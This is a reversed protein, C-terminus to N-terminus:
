WEMLSEVWEATIEDTDEFRPGKYGDEVVIDRVDVEIREDSYQIAAALM